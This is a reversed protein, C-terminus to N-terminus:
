KVMNMLLQKVQAQDTFNISMLTFHARYDMNLM